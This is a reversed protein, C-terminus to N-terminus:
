DSVARLGRPPSTPGEPEAVLDLVEDATESAEGEIALQAPAQEAAPAQARVPASQRPITAVFPSDDQIVFTDETSNLPDVFFLVGVAVALVAVIAWLRNSEGAAGYGM